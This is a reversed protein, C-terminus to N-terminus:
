VYFCFHPKKLLIATQIPFDLKLSNKDFGVRFSFFFLAFTLVFFLLVLYVPIVPTVITVVYFTTVWLFMYYGITVLLLKYYHLLTLSSYFAFAIRIGYFLMNCPSFINERMLVPAFFSIYYSKLVVLTWYRADVKFSVSADSM